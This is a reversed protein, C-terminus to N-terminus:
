LKWQIETIEGKITNELCIKVQICDKKDTGIEQSIFCLEAIPLNESYVIIIGNEEAQNMM